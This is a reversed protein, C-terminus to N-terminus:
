IADPQREPAAAAVAPLSLCHEYIAMIRPYAHMPVAFRLANYVQPILCVDALTISTGLCFLGDSNIAFTSNVAFTSGSNAQMQLQQEFARFGLSIWHHIWQEKAADSCGLTGTLYKLVRLNNIPHIDAAVQLMLSRVQARQWHDAPLLPPEPYTEELWELIALSQTLQRGDELQLAPVLGQPHDQLYAEQQQQGERLNVPLQDYELGKLNLAIRVRYSASSRFYDYLKM